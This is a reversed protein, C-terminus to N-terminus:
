VLSTLVALSLSALPVCTYVYFLPEIWGYVSTRDGMFGAVFPYPNYLVDADDASHKSNDGCCTV